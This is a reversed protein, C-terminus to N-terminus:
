HLNGFIEVSEEEPGHHNTLLGIYVATLLTFVLAQIVGILMELFYFPVPVLYGFLGLMRMILNEGGFINGYLRFSLSVIRFLMSILDVVGVGLFVVGLILYLPLPVERRDAKNGFTDQLFARPGAYRLVFYAWAATSAIALGLTANLDANSPRFFYRLHGAGDVMGFAGVGPLLGSWNEVLIYIFLTLLFPFVHPLARAGVIPEFLAHMKEWLIEVAAQGRTPIISPEKGLIRRVSFILVLALVWNTVMANTVPLRGLVHFLDYAQRSVAATKVPLVFSLLIAGFIVAAWKWLRGM